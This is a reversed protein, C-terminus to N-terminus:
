YAAETNLIADNTLVPVGQFMLTGAAVSGPGVKGFQDLGESFKLVNQTKDLAMVSLMEKVSRNALFMPRGMGMAPIKAFARIMLKLINTSATLAQTGTVGSLDSVDISAIRVVYRWDKVHLGFKWTWLEEYAQFPNGDDDNVKQEGLDKHQLGAPSGKPYIGTVTNPGAVILLISTNDSGSGGADLINQANEASSDNYRPILGLVGDPETATNGYIIQEAFTQNMSEVAAYAEQARFAKVDGNLEAVDVDIINRGSAMACKDEVPARSSKSYPTGQYYKRLVVTPLGTRVLGKHGTPLNGEIFPLYRVIENTESLLEAVAMVKGDPGYSSAVDLLTNYKTSLTAM